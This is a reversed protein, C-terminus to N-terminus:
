FGCGPQDVTQESILIAQPDPFLKSIRNIQHYKSINILTNIKSWYRQNSNSWFHTIFGYFNCFLHSSIFFRPRKIEENQRWFSWRHYHRYLKRPLPNKRLVNGNQTPKKGPAIFCLFSNLYEDWLRKKHLDSKRSRFKSVSKLWRREFTYKWVRVPELLITIHWRDGGQCHARPPSANKLLWRQLLMHLPSPRTFLGDGWVAGMTLYTPIRTDDTPKHM